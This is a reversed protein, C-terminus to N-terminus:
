ERLCGLAKPFRDGHQQFPIPLHQGQARVSWLERGTAALESIEVPDQVAARQADCERALESLKSRMRRKVQWRVWQSIPFFLAPIGKYHITYEVVTASGQPTLAFRQLHTRYSIQNRELLAQVREPESQVITCIVEDAVFPLIPFYTHTMRFTTGVGSGRPGIYAFDHHFPDKRAFHEVDELVTWIQRVTHPLIRSVHYDM